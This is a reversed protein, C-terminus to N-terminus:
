KMLIVILLLLQMFSAMGNCIWVATRKFRLGYLTWFIYSLMFGLIYFTSVTSARNTSHEAYVQVAMGLLTVFGILSGIIEFYKDSKKKVIM